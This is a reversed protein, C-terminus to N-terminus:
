ECFIASSELKVGDVKVKYIGKDKAKFSFIGKENTTTIFEFGSPYIVTVNRNSVPQNNDSFVVKVKNVKKFKIKDYILKGRKVFIAFL